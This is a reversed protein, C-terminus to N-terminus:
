VIRDDISPNFFFFFFILPIQNISPNPKRVLSLPISVPSTTAIGPRLHLEVGLWKTTIESKLKGSSYFRYDVIAVLSQPLRSLFRLSILPFGARFYFCFM